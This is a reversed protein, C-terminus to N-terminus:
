ECDMTSVEDEVKKTWTRRMKPPLIDRVPLESEEETGIPPREEVDTDTEEGPPEGEFIVAQDKYKGNPLALLIEKGPKVDIKKAAFLSFYITSKTEGDDDSDDSLEVRRLVVHAKQSSGHPRFRLPGQIGLISTLIPSPSTGDSDSGSDDM